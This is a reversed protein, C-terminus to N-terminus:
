NLIMRVRQLAPTDNNTGIAYIYRGSQSLTADYGPLVKMIDSINSSDFDRIKLSGDVTNWIYAADLWNVAGSSGSASGVNYRRHETEYGLTQSESQAVLFRGTASFSVSLVPDDLRITDRVKLLSVEAESRPYNGRLVAVSNGESVAFYDSGHYTASSVSLPAGTVTGRLVYGSADGDRYVGAVARASDNQDVGIYGVVKTEHNVNFASVGSVLARSITQNGLDLKRLTGDTLLAYLTRGDNGVFDVHEIDVNLSDSVNRSSDINQTDIVLWKRIDGKTAKALLYRSGQDWKVIDVAFPEGELLTMNEGVLFDPQIIQEDIKVTDSTLDALKYTLSSNSEQVLYKKRDPSALGKNVGDFSASTEVPRNVPVLRVYDLWTLTGSRIDLKRGWDQYGSRAFTVVQEGALVMKKGGTRVGAYEGNIWVNAGNPRSDFQLLAGQQLKGSDSDLRYGLTFFITVTVVSVVLVIALVSVAVREFLQQKQTPRKFM